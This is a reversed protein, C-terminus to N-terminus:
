RVLEKLLAEIHEDTTKRSSLLSYDTYTYDYVYEGAERKKELDYPPASVAVYWEKAGEVKYKILYATVNRGNLVTKKEGIVAAQTVYLDDDMLYAVNGLAINKGTLKEKPFLSIKQCALLDRHLLSIYHIDSAYKKLLSASVPLDNKIMRIMTEYVLYDDKDKLFEQFWKQKKEKPFLDVLNILRYSFYASSGRDKRYSPMITSNMWNEIEDYRVAIERRVGESTDSLSGLGNVALARYDDDKLFSVYAQVLYEAYTSSYLGQLQYTELTNRSPTAKTVLELFTFFYASDDAALSLSKLLEGQFEPNNEQEKYMERVLAPYQKPFSQQMARLVKYSKRQYFTEEEQYSHAAAKKLLPIHKEKFKVVRLGQEIAEKKLTDEEMLDKLLRESKDINQASSKKTFRFSKFFTETHISKVDQEDSAVVLEYVDDNYFYYRLKKMKYGKRVLYEVVPNDAAGYEKRNIIEGETTDRTEYYLSDLFRRPSEVTYYPSTVFRTIAYAGSSAPDNFSYSLAKEYHVQTYYGAMATDPKPTEFVTVSFLSDSPTYLEGKATYTYDTLRISNFYGVASENDLTALNEGVVMFLYVRNGKTIFLMRSYAIKKNIAKMHLAKYQHDHVVYKEELIQFDPNAKLNSAAAELAISDDEIHFGGKYLYWTSFFSNGMYPTTSFKMRMQVDAAEGKITQTMDKLKKPMLVEYAGLTDYYLALDVHSKQEQKNLRVSGLYKKAHEDTVSKKNGSVAAALVNSGQIMIAYQYYMEQATKLLVYLKKKGNEDTMKKSVLQYKDREIMKSAFLDLTKEEDSAAVSRGINLTLVMFFTNRYLDPTMYMKMDLMDFMSLPFDVVPGPAQVEFLGTKETYTNWNYEVGNYRFKKDMGSYVATVPSLKYGKKRLLDIMGSDGPLHACGMAVFMSQKQLISDMRDAMTVNRALLDRSFERPFTKRFDDIVKMDGKEYISLITKFDEESNTQRTQQILSKLQEQINKENNLTSYDQLTELGITKKKLKKALGYLYADLFTERQNESKDYKYDNVFMSLMWTEKSNINELGVGMKSRVRTDLLEYDEKSLQKKLYATTDKDFFMRLMQGLVNDMDVEAAFVDTQSIGIYVSDSLNFVREDKVHMTGYLYSPKAMGKGEIKWLLQNTLNVKQAVSLYLVGLCLSLTMFFRIITSYSIM